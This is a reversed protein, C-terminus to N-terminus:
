SSNRKPVKGIFMVTARRVPQGPVRVECRDGVKIDKAATEDAEMEQRKVEEKQKMEEADYKGLKNHELFSRV